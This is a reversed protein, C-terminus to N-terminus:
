RSRPRYAERKRRKTRKREREEMSPPPYLNMRVRPEVTSQCCRKSHLRDLREKAKEIRTATWYNIWPLSKGPYYVTHQLSESATEAECQKPRLPAQRKRGRWNSNQLEIGLLGDSIDDTKRGHSETTSSQPGKQDHAPGEKASSENWLSTGIRLSRSQHQEESFTMQAPLLNSM